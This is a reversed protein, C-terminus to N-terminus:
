KGHRVLHLSEQRHDLIGNGAANAPSDFSFVAALCTLCNLRARVDPYRDRVGANLGNGRLRRAKSYFLRGSLQPGDDISWYVLLGGTHFKVLISKGVWPIFEQLLARSNVIRFVVIPTVGM